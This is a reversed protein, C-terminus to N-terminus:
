RGRAASGTRSVALQARSLALRTRSLALQSRGRDWRAVRLPNVVIQGDIPEWGTALCIWRSGSGSSTLWSLRPLMALDPMAIIQAEVDATLKVTRRLSQGAGYCRAGVIRAQTQPPPYHRM